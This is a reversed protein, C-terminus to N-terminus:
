IPHGTPAKQRCDANADIISQETVYCSKLAPTFEPTSADRWELEEIRKKRRAIDTKLAKNEAMLHDIQESQRRIIEFLEKEIVGSGM